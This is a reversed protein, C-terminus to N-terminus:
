PNTNSLPKRSSANITSNSPVLKSKILMDVGEGGGLLAGFLPIGPESPIIRAVNNDGKETEIDEQPGPDLLPDSDIRSAHLTQAHAGPLDSVDFQISEPAMKPPDLEQVNEEEFVVHQVIEGLLENKPIIVADNTSLREIPIEGKVIGPEISERTATM